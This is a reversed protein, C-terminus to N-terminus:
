ILTALLDVMLAASTSNARRNAVIVLEKFSVTEAIGVDIRNRDSSTGPSYSGSCCLVTSAYEMDSELDFGGLTSDEDRVAGTPCSTIRSKSVADLRIRSFGAWM